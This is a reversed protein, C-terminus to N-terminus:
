NYRISKYLQYIGSFKKRLIFKMRNIKTKKQLNLNIIDKLNLDQFRKLFVKEEELNNIVFFPKNEKVKEQLCWWEYELGRSMIINGEFNSLLLDYFNDPIQLGYNAPNDGALIIGLITRQCKPCINCNAGNRLESYCVRLNINEKHKKAFDIVNVIKEPRRLHYGDHIIKINAWNMNEDIEPRSGWSFDVEKTNSSAIYINTVNLLNSLPALVGLLAMGHQIEGWWGINEILLDVKYTYFDRLNSEIYTLRSQDIIPEKENFTKFQNWRRKDEIEVDAGHIPVLYPNVDYNRTLSEFSDLGGSFLLISNNGNNKNSVLTNFILKGQNKIKPHHKEFQVRLEKLSNYFTEDLEDVYVDFGTFWSIPMINALLPIVAISLPTESVDKDYATYLKKDINFYKSISKSITYDYVIKTGENEILIANLKFM